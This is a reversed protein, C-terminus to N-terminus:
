ANLDRADAAWMDAAMPLNWWGGVRTPTGTVADDSDPTPETGCMWAPVEANVPEVTMALHKPDPRWFTSGYYVDVTGETDAFAQAISRIEATHYQRTAGTARTRITFTRPQTTAQTTTM